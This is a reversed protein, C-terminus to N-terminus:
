FTDVDGGMIRWNQLAFIDTNFSRKGLAHIILPAQRHRYFGARRLAKAISDINSVTELLIAGSQIVQKITTALVAELAKPKEGLLEVLHARNDAIHGWASNQRGWIAVAELKGNQYASVWQYNNEAASAYRWSLWEPTREIQCLNTQESAHSLLQTLEGNSPKLAQIEFGKIKGQPILQAALDAVPKALMPIKPHGSPKIFRIWHTVDGTHTWGLRKVFGPYSLPNPFGYLIEFGRATAIEYCAEALKTFVGQGQYDPHTMTDMSQAGTVVRDGVKIKVPWVTYAGALKDGDVALTVPCAGDPPSLYRWNDFTVPRNYGWVDKYLTRIAAMDNPKAERIKWNPTPKPTMIKEGIKIVIPLHSIAGSFSALFVKL